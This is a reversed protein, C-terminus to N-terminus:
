GPLNKFLGALAKADQLTSSAVSEQWLRVDIPGRTATAEAWHVQYLRLIRALCGQLTEGINEAIAARMEDFSWAAILSNTSDANFAPSADPTFIQPFREATDRRRPRAHDFIWFAAGHKARLRAIEGLCEDLNQRTPLHHLSFISTVLDVRTPLQHSFATMDGVRLEVRDALSHERLMTNGAAVMEKSLDIGLICLDPRRLALYRLCQGSGCGLDVVFGGKPTLAHVARANFHYVGLLAGGDSGEAHFARVNELDSMDPTPEPTRKLRPKSLAERLALAAARITRTM